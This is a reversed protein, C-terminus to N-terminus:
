NMSLKKVVRDFAILLDGIENIKLVYFKEPHVLKYDLFGLYYLLKLNKSATSESIELTDAIEHVSVRKKKCLIHLIDRRTKTGIAKALKEDSM